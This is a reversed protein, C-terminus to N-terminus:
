RQTWRNSLDISCDSITARRGLEKTRNRRSSGDELLEFGESSYRKVLLGERGGDGGFFEIEKKWSKGM